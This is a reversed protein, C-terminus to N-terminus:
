LELLQKGSGQALITHCTNCDNAKITRKGNETKHNGDHCRFCGNWIMHGINDPYSSWKAKMEPFFNDRYIQQVVPIAKLVAPNNPYRDALITAIGDRAGKDTKYDRTLAYVVNTKIWPLSPDIGYNNTAGLSLALNVASDPSM